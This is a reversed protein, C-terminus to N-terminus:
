ESIITYFAAAETGVPGISFSNPTDFNTAIRQWNGLAAAKLLVFRAGSGGAYQLACGGFGCIRVPAPLNTACGLFHFRVCDAYTDEDKSGHPGGGSVYTFEVQPQTIDPRNTLYCVHAWTDACYAAQFATTNTWGGAATAGFVGGVDCNTSGVNMIIDTALDYSPLTVQVDYVAGAVTGNTHVVGYGEGVSLLRATHWYSGARGPTIPNTATSVYTSTGYPSAAYNICYFPADWNTDSNSSVRAAYIRDQALATSLGWAALGFTVVWRGIIGHSLEARM